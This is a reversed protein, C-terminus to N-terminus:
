EKESFNKVELPSEEDVKSVKIDMSHYNHPWHLKFDEAADNLETSGVHAKKTKQHHHHDEENGNGESKESNGGLGSTTPDRQDKLISLVDPVVDDFAIDVPGEVLCGLWM